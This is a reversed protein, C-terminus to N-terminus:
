AIGIMSRTESLSPPLAEEDGQLKYMSSGTHDVDCMVGRVRPMMIFSGFCLLM